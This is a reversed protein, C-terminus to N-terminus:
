AKLVPFADLPKARSYESEFEFKYIPTTMSSEDVLHVHSTEGLVILYLHQVKGSPHDVDISHVQPIHYQGM